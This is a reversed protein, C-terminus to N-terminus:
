ERSYEMKTIEDKQGFRNLSQTKGLREKTENFINNAYKLFILGLVPFTYESPKLEGDARLQKAVSWLSAELDKLKQDSIQQQEEPTM